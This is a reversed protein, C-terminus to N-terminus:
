DEVDIESFLFDAWEELTFPTTAKALNCKGTKILFPCGEGCTLGSCDFRGKGCEKADQLTKLFNEKVKDNLTDFVTM